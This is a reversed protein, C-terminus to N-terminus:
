ANPNDVVTIFSDLYFYGEDGAAVCTAKIAVQLYKGDEPGKVFYTYTYDFGGEVTTSATKVIEANEDIIACAPTAYSLVYNILTEEYGVVFAGFYANLGLEPVTDEDIKYIGADNSNLVPTLMEITYYAFMQTTWAADDSTDYIYDLGDNSLLYM